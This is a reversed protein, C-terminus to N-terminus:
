HLLIRQPSTITASNTPYLLIKHNELINEPTEDSFDFFFSSFEEILKPFSVIATARRNNELIGNERFYRVTEIIQTIMCNPYNSEQRFANKVNDAYKM